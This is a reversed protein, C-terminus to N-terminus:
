KLGSLVNILFPFSGSGSGSGCRQSFSGSRPPGFVHPDQLDPDPEPDPEPDPDGVSIVPIYLNSVSVHVNLNLVLSRLKMEPFVYIPDGKCHISLIIKKTRSESLNKASGIL